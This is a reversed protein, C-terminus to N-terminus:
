IYIVALLYYLLFIFRCKLILGITLLSRRTRSTLRLQINKIVAEKLADKPDCKQKLKSRRNRRLEGLLHMAWNIQNVPKIIEPDIIWKKQFAFISNTYHLLGGQQFHWKACMRSYMVILFLKIQYYRQRQGPMKKTTTLSIRGILQCLYAIPTVSIFLALGGKSYKDARGLQNTPGM